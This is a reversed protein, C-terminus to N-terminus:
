SSSREGRLGRFQVIRVPPRDPFRAVIELDGGLAQIVGRLTSVYMDARRELKSVAAQQVGLREAIQEQSRNRIERLDRLTAEEAILESARAEVAHREEVPLRALYDRMDVPM